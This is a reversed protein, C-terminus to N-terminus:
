DRPIPPPRPGDARGWLIAERIAAAEADTRLRMGEGEAEVGLLGWLRDLDVPGGHHYYLDIHTAMTPVGVAKDCAAAFAATTWRQTHTGGDRAIARLCHELGRAGGTERRMQVDTMLMFLAGGWGLAGFGARRMGTRALADEGRAMERVFGAWVAEPAIWGARARALPGLYTAIGRMLWVADDILYPMRGQLMAEILLGDGALAARDSTQGLQVATSIGGGAATRASLVGHRGAVPVVVVMSGAGPDSGYIREVAAANGAVWRELAPLGAEVPRDPVVLEISPTAAARTVPGFVTYGAQTLAGAALIIRGDEGVTMASAVPEGALRLRLPLDLAVPRPLWLDATTLLSGGATQVGRGAAAAHAGLDLSYRFRWGGGTAWRTGDHRLAQGAGDRFDIRDAIWAPATFAAVPENCAIETQVLPGPDVTVDYDCASAAAAAPSLFFLLALLARM